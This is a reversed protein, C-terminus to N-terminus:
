AIEEKKRRMFSFWEEFIELMGKLPVELFFDFIYTFINLKAIENSLWRGVQLVPLLFFNIIPSFLGESEEYLYERATQRIRYGFFTIVSLFFIFVIQSILSFELRSLILHIGGFVVIFAFGYILTFMFTLMPRITMKKTSFEISKETQDPVQYIIEEIRHFIRETNAEGPPAATLTIFFMLLPPFLTNIALPVVDIKGLFYRDAPVEIILAFIMKTIFIYIVSRVALRRLRQGTQNYRLSCMDWVAEKLKTKDNLIAVSKEAHHDLIDKLIRFPAAQRRAYLYLRGAVPHKLQHEIGQITKSIKPLLATVVEKGRKEINPLYIKLLQYRLLAEDAKAFARSVALYVQIDRIHNKKNNVTITSKLLQFMYNILADRQTTVGLREEIECSAVGFLWDSYFNQEDGKVQQLLKQRLIMYKDISEQIRPVLSEDVSGSPLYKAWILERILMEAIQKGEPNLIIRRRLIREIAARQLVAEDRFEIANRIKELLFAAASITRSVSIKQMGGSTLPKHSTYVSILAKTLPSLQPPNDM